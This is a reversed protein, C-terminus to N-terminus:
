SLRTLPLSNVIFLRQRSTTIILRKQPASRFEARRSIINRQISLITLIPICTRAPFFTEKSVPQCEGKGGREDKVVFHISNGAVTGELKDGDVNGTLKGDQQNLELSFYMPTGYFDANVIWRGTLSTTSQPARANPPNQAFAIRTVLFTLLLIKRMQAGGLQDFAVFTIVRNANAALVRLDDVADV